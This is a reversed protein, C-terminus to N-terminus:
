FLLSKSQLSGLSARQALDLAVLVAKSQAGHTRMDQAGSTM